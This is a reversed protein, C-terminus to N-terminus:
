LFLFISTCLHSPEWLTGLEKAPCALLFWAQLLLTPQLLSLFGSRPAVLLQHLTRRHLM